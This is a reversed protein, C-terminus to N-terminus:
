NAGGLGLRRFQAALEEVTLCDEVPLGKTQLIQAIRTVQPVDLGLQQLRDVQTFVEKPTGRMVIEGSDMVIVRDAQVAEDMYHTVLLVTMGTDNLRRITDMVERRGSPDLMATSEDFVICRPEMALIGAIAVRQKQGGSLHHPSRRKFEAMGVTELASPLGLNEPGFAVDEEVVTAVLQNDPNQFVMGAIKRVEWVSEPDKTEIGGIRITGATPIMIGNLLKSLTSKGSGNHGIIAVFEGERIEFSVDRLAFKNPNTEDEYRFSLQEVQIM